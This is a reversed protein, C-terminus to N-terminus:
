TGVNDQTIAGVKRHHVQITISLTLEHGLRAFSSDKTIACLYTICVVITHCVIAAAPRTLVIRTVARVAIATRLEERHNIACCSTFQSTCVENSTTGLSLSGSLPSGVPLCVVPFPVRARTLVSPFEGVRQAKTRSRKVSLGVLNEEPTTDISTGDHLTPFIGITLQSSQPFKVGVSRATVILIALRIAGVCTLTIVRKVHSVEVTIALVLHHITRTSKIIIASAQPTRPESMAIGVMHTLEQGVALTQLHEM